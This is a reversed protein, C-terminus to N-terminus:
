TEEEFERYLGRLEFTEIDAYPHIQVHRQQARLAAPGFKESYMAEAVELRKALREENYTAIRNRHRNSRRNVLFLVLYVVAFLALFFALFAITQDWLAFGEAYKWWGKDPNDRHAIASWTVVVPLVAFFWAIVLLVFQQVKEGWHGHGFFWDVTIDKEDVSHVIYAPRESM